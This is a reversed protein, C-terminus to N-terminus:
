HYRMQIIRRRKEEIERVAKKRLNLAKDKFGLAEIKDAQQTLADYYYPMSPKLNPCILYSMILSTPCEIRIKIEKPLSQIEPVQHQPFDMVWPPNKLTVNEKSLGYGKLWGEYRARLLWLHGRIVSFQPFTSSVVFPPVQKYSGMDLYDRKPRDTTLEIKDTSKLVIYNYGGPDQLISLSNVFFGAVFLLIVATKLFRQHVITAFPIISVPIMPLLFRPGWSDGGEWAWWASYILLNTIVMLIILIGEEKHRKTFKWFAYPSLVMVPAFLFLSKDPNFLFNFIGTPVPNVFMRMEKGYGFDFISSYRYYNLFAVLFGFVIIPIMFSSITPLLKKNKDTQATLLLYLVFFPIFILLIAKTLIGYCYVIGGLSLLIYTQKVSTANRGKLLCLFTVTICCAQLPESLFFNIYPFAFTGFITLLSLLLGRKYSYGLSMITLHVVYATAALILVNPFALVINSNINGFISHLLDNLFLFPVLILPLGLGYKSYDKIQEGTILNTKVALSMDHLEFISVSINLMDESDSISFFHHETFFISSILIVVFIPIIKKIFYM